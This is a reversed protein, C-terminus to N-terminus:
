PQPNDLPTKTVFPELADKMEAFLDSPRHPLGLGEFVEKNQAEIGEADGYLNASQSAANFAANFWGMSVNMRVAAIKPILNHLLKNETSREDSQALVAATFVKLTDNVRSNIPELAEQAQRVNVKVAAREEANTYLITLPTEPTVQAM